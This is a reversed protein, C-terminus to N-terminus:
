GDIDKMFSISSYGLSNMLMVKSTGLAGRIGAIVELYSRKMSWSQTVGPATTLTVGDDHELNYFRAYDSRDVVVGQFNPINAVRRRTQAVMEAHYQERGPDMLVGNDWAGQNPRVTQDQANWNSRLVSGSLHNQAYLTANRYDDPEAAVAAGSAHGRVNMGFEFVNM